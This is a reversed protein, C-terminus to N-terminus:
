RKFCVNNMNEAYIHMSIQLCKCEASHLKVKYLILIYPTYFMGKEEEALASIYM